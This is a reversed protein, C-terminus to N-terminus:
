EEEQRPDEVMPRGLRARGVWGAPDTMTTEARQAVMGDVGRTVKLKKAMEARDM